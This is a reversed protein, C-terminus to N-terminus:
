SQHATSAREGYHRRFPHGPPIVAVTDTGPFDALEPDADKGFRPDSFQRITPDVITGDHLEIWCHYTGRPGFGGVKKFCDVEGGMLHRTAYKSVEGCWNHEVDQELEAEPFLDEAIAALDELADPSLEPHLWDDESEFLWDPVM